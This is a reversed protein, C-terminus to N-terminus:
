PLYKYHPNSNMIKGFETNRLWVPMNEDGVVIRGNPKTVRVMESFARKIDGFTNIGGFHFTRDITIMLHFIIVM